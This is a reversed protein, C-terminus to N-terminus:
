YGTTWGANVLDQYNSLTMCTTAQASSLGVYKLTKTTVKSNICMRMINNLSENTLNPCASFTRDMNIMSSTNFLPMNALELCYYFMQNAYKINSTNLLSVTTLKRCDNFLSTTNVVNVLDLSTVSELNYCKSFLSSINSSTINLKSGDISKIIKTVSDGVVAITGDLFANETSQSSVDTTIEVSSLGDKGATPTITTTTNETITISKSELDPQVNVNANEYNKVDKLGNTTIDITGEPAKAFGIEGELNIPSDLKGELQIPIELESNM